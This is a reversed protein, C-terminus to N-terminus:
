NHSARKDLAIRGAQYDRPGGGGGGHWTGALVLCQGLASTINSWRRLRHALMAGANPRHRTEAPTIAKTWALGCARARLDRRRQDILPCSSFHFLFGPWGLLKGRNVRTSRARFIPNERTSMNPFLHHIPTKCCSENFGKNFEENSGKAALRM